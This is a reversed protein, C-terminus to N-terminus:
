VSEANIFAAVQKAMARTDRRAQSVAQSDAWMAQFRPRVAQASFEYLEWIALNSVNAGVRSDTVNVTTNDPLRISVNNGDVFAELFRQVGDAQNGVNGSAYISESVNLYSCHWSGDANLVLHVGAPTGGPSSVWSSSPLVLTISGGAGVPFKYAAGIRSVKGGLQVQLYGANNPDRIADHVVEGGSVYLPAIGFSTSAQGTDIPISAGNALQTVDVYVESIQVAGGFSGGGMSAQARAVIARAVWKPFRGSDEIVLESMRKVTDILAFPNQDTAIFQWGAPFAGPVIADSRLSLFTKGSPDIFFPMRGSADYIAAGYDSNSVLRLLADFEEGTLLQGLTTYTSSSTRRFRTERALGDSGGRVVAFVAGDAVAALGAAITNYLPVNLVAADRASEAGTRAAQAATASTSAASAQTTAIGSQTTATGAQTTATSASDAAGSASGAAASASGSAASASTAADGAKTTALGAQTTAIGAQTTATDRAAEAAQRATVAQTASAASDSKSQAAATQSTNAADRAAEAGTKATGAATASAGASAAQSQAQDRLYKLNAESEEFTPTRGLDGRLLLHDTEM